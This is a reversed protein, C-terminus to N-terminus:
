RVHFAQCKDYYNQCSALFDLQDDTLEVNENDALKMVEDMNKCNNFQEKQEDSLHAFIRELSEKREM